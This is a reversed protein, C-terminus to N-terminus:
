ARVPRAAAVAAALASAPEPTEFLFFHGGPFAHLRPSGGAHETWARLRHPDHTPDQTGYWFVHPVDVTGAKPYTDTLRVDDGYLQVAQELRLPDAFLSAPSGGYERLQRELETASHVPVSGPPSGQPGRPVASMILTRVHHLRSAPLGAVVAHALLSGLSHGIVVTPRDVMETAQALLYAAAAAFGRAREGRERPGRGPLQFLVLEADQPLVPQFPLFAAASGGAHHFALLRVACDRPGICLPRIGPAANM